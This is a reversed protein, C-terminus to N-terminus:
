EEGKKHKRKRYNKTKTKKDLIISGIKVGSRIKGLNFKPLKISIHEVM